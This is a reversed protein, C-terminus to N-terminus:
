HVSSIKSLQQGGMIMAITTLQPYNNVLKAGVSEEYVVVKQTKLM